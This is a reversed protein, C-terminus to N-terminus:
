LDKISIRQAMKGLPKWDKDKEKNKCETCFINGGPFGKWLATISFEKGCDMCRAGMEPIEVNKNCEWCYYKAPSVDEGPIIDGRTARMVTKGPAFHAVIKILNSLDAVVMGHCTLHFYM